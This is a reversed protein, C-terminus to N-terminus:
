RSSRRRKPKPGRGLQVLWVSKSKRSRKNGGRKKTRKGTQSKTAPPSGGPDVVRLEARSKFRKALASLKRKLEPDRRHDQLMIWLDEDLVGQDRMAERLYGRSRVTNMDGTCERLLQQVRKEHVAHQAEQEKSRADSRLIAVIAPLGLPPREALGQPHRKASKRHKKGMRVSGTTVVLSNVLRATFCM